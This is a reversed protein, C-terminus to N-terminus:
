GDLGGTHRHLLCPRFLAGGIYFSSNCSAGDEKTVARRIDGDSHVCLGSRDIVLVVYDGGKNNLCRIQSGWSAM